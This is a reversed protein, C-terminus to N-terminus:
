IEYEYVICVDQLQLEAIILVLRSLIVMGKV